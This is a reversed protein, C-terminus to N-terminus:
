ALKLDVARSSESCSSPGSSSWTCTRSGRSTADWNHEITEALFRRMATADGSRPEDAWDELLVTAGLKFRWERRPWLIALALVVVIGFCLLALVALADLKDDKLTDAALFSTAISAAALLVGTRTRLEDVAREQHDLARVSQAYALEEPTSM